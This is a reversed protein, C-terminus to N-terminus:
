RELSFFIGVHTIQIALLVTLSYFAAFLHMFDTVVTEDGGRNDCYSTMMCHLSFNVKNFLAVKLPVDPMALPLAKAVRLAVLMNTISGNNPAELIGLVHCM